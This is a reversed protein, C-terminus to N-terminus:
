ISPWSCVSRCTQEAWVLRVLQLAKWLAEGLQLGQPFQLQTVVLAKQQLANPLIQNPSGFPPTYARLPVCVLCINFPCQSVRLKLSTKSM